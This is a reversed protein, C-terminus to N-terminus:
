NITMLRPTNVIIGRFWLARKQPSYLANEWVKEGNTEAVDGYLLLTLYESLFGFCVSFSKGPSMHNAVSLPMVLIHTGQCQPWPQHWRVPAKWLIMQSLERSIWWSPAICSLDAVMGLPKWAKREHSGHMSQRPHSLLQLTAPTLDRKLVCIFGSRGKFGKQAGKWKMRMVLLISVWLSCHQSIKLVLWKFVTKLM